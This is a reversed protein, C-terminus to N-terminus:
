FSNESGIKEKRSFFRGDVLIMDSVLRNGWDLPVGCVVFQSIRTDDVLHCVGRWRNQVWFITPSGPRRVCKEEVFQKPVLVDNVSKECLVDAHFPNSQCNPNLRRKTLTTNETEDDTDSEVIVHADNKPLVCARDTEELGLQKGKELIAYYTERSKNFEHDDQTDTLFGFLISFFSLFFFSWSM